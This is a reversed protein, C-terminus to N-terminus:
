ASASPRRGLASRVESPTRGFEARFAASFHAHSSFGVDHALASLDEGDELMRDVALRLRARSLYRTLPTGLVRSFTRSFHWPTCGALDALEPLTRRRAPDVSLMVAIEAIRRELRRLAAARRPGPALPDRGYMGALLLTLFAQIRDDVELSDAGGVEITRLLHYYALYAPPSVPVGIAPFPNSEERGHDPDWEHVLAGIFDPDLLFDTGRARDVGPHAIRPEDDANFLLASMSDGVVVEDGLSKRCGGERAIVIAPVGGTRITRNDPHLRRDWTSEGLVTHSSVWTVDSSIVDLGAAKRLRESANHPGPARM